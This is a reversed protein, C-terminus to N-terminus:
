STPLPRSHIKSPKSTSSSSIKLNPRHSSPHDSIPLPRSHKSNSSSSPIKSDTRHSSSHASTTPSHKITYSNSSPSPSRLFGIDQSAHSHHHSKGKTNHNATRPSGSALESVHHKHGRHRKREPSPEKKVSKPHNKGRRPELEPMSIKSLHITLSSPPEYPTIPHASTSAVPPDDLKIVRLGKGKKNGSDNDNLTTDIYQFLEEDYGSTKYWLRKTAEAVQVVKSVNGASQSRLTIYLLTEDSLLSVCHRVYDDLVGVDGIVIENVDRQEKAQLIAIQDEGWGVPKPPPPPPSSSSSPTPPQSRSLPQTVPPQPLLNNGSPKIKLQESYDSFTLLSTLIAIELGKRDKIDFRNINYDLIQVTSTKLKGPPEKTVAVLVPPDPKRIMYCEERKWDFQNESLPDRLSFCYAEKDNPVWTKRYHVVGSPEVLDIGNPFSKSPELKLTFLNQDLAM